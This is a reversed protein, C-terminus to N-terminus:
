LACPSRARTHVQVFARAALGGRDRREPHRRRDRGAVHRRGSQDACQLTALAFEPGAVAALQLAATTSDALRSLRHTVVERVSEPTGLDEFPRSLHVTGASVALADTEVLERWLETVLFANGGTLVGMADALGHGARVGTTREVFEAVEDGSLGPLRIRVVGESRAVEALTESLGRSAGAESDRFTGVLLVRLDASSRVLHRLLLLTPSDAWHLDELVLMIPSRRGAASLLDTVATHLRHREADADASAPTPLKGVRAELDPLLRTLEGGAPGLDDRLAAPDANRVLHDLAEVFPRYPTAVVADCAGYLVSTGEAGVEHALERLLRSKGSGAEGSVLAM